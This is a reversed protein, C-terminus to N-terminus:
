TSYRWVSGGTGLPPRILTHISWPRLRRPVFTHLEKVVDTGPVLRITYFRANSPVADSIDAKVAVDPSDAFCAGTMMLCLVFGLLFKKM